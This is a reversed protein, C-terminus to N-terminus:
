LVRHNENYLVNLWDESAFAHGCTASWLWSLSCNGETFYKELKALYERGANCAEELESDCCSPFVGFGLVLGRNAAAQWKPLTDESFIEEFSHSLCDFSLFELPFDLFDFSFGQCSHVGFHSRLESVRVFLYSYIENLISKSESSLHPWDIFGPEDLVFLLGVGNRSLLRHQWEIQRLVAHMTLDLRETLEGEMSKSYLALTLPGPLQCKVLPPIPSVEQLREHFAYFGEAESEVYGSWSPELAKEARAIMSDKETDRILEPWSPILWPHEFMFDVARESSKFPVSGLLFAHHQNQDVIRSLLQSNMTVSVTRGTALCSGCIAFLEGTSICAMLPMGVLM